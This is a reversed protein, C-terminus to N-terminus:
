IEFYIVTNSSEILQFIEKSLSESFLKVLEYIESSM